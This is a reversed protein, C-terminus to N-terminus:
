FIFFLFPTTKILCREASWTPYCSTSSGGSWTCPRYRWRRRSCRAASPRDTCQENLPPPPPRRPPRPPPPPPHCLCFSLFPLLPCISVSTRNVIQSIRPAIKSNQWHIAKMNDTLVLHTLLYLKNINCRKCVFHQVPTFYSWWMTLCLLVYFCLVYFVCTASTCLHRVM